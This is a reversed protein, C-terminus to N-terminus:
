DENPIGMIKKYESTDKMEDTIESIQEKTLIKKKEALKIILQGVSIRKHLNDNQERLGNLEEMFQTDTENLMDRIRGAEAAYTAYASSTLEDLKSMVEDEEGEVTFTQEFQSYAGPINLNINRSATIKM